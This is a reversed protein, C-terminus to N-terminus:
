RKDWSHIDDATEDVGDPGISWAAASHHLGKVGAADVIGDYPEEDLAIRYINGWPDRMGNGGGESETYKKHFDLYKTKRPNKEIYGSGAYNGQLIRIADNDMETLKFSNGPGSDPFHKYDTYYANWATVIQDIDRKAQAKRARRKAASLGGLLMGALLAMIGVVVMVELLTFGSKKSGTNM